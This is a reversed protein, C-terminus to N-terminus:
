YSRIHHCAVEHQDQINRLVPIVTDCKAQADKNVSLRLVCRNRFPCGCSSDASIAEGKLIEKRKTKKDTFASPMSALLGQTYPHLPNDYIQDNSGKEVIMGLYMVNLESCLYRVVRLDHSIFIITLDLQNQLDVLLNLIQAQISVDLASVPEDCILLSPELILARAISIRQRQGGSFQHPYRALDQETLGVLKLYEKAKEIRSARNGISHTALTDVLLSKISMRPSLSSYPDQFIYQVQRRYNKLETGQFLRVNHGNWLIEGEDPEELRVITRALTTKGCGSEGVIGVIYGKELHLSVNSLAQVSHSSSRRLTRDRSFRKSIGKITLLESMMM